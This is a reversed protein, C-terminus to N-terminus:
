DPVCVQRRDERSGPFVLIERGFGIRDGDRLVQRKTRRGNVFTGNTSYLDCAWLFGDQDVTQTHSRSISDRFIEISDPQDGGIVAMQSGGPLARNVEGADRGQDKAEVHVGLDWDAIRALCTVKAIGSDLIIPKQARAESKQLRVEAKTVDRATV